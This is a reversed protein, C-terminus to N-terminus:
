STMSADRLPRVLVLRVQQPADEAVDTEYICEVPGSSVGKQRLFTEDQALRVGAWTGYGFSGAIILVHSGQQFPNPAKVLLGYDTKVQAQGLSNSTLRPSFVAGTRQDHISVEHIGPDGARLTLPVRELVLRTISNADPGGLLILNTKLSDGEVHDNYAVKFRRFRLDDFHALLEKLALASGVGIFGTPEFAAFDTHRGIVVQLEGSVFPRWFRRARRFVIAQRLWDWIRGLVFACFTTMLGVTVESVQRM